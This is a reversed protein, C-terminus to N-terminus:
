PNLEDAYAELLRDAIEDFSLGMEDNMNIPSLGIKCFCHYLLNRAWQPKSYDQIGMLENSSKSKLLKEEPVTLIALAGMVCYTNGTQAIHFAQKFVGAKLFAIWTLFQEKDEKTKLLKEM